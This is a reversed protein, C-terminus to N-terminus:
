ATPLPFGRVLAPLMQEPTMRSVFYCFVAGYNVVGIWLHRYRYFRMGHLEQGGPPFVLDSQRVNICLISQGKGKYLSYAVTSGDPRHDIRAGALSMGLSSFDWIFPYGFASTLATALDAQTRLTSSSAFNREASLYDAVAADLAPNRPHSLPGAILVVAAIAAAAAMGVVGWWWPRRSRGARALRTAADERDLAAIIKQRLEPPAPRIPIQERLVAKLAHEDDRRQRCDPCSALHASVAQREAPNLEGDVDASLYHEIYQRHDM